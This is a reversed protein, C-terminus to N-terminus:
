TGRVTTYDYDCIEGGLGAMIGDVRSLTVCEGVTESADDKENKQMMSKHAM